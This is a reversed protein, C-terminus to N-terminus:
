IERAVEDIAEGRIVRLVVKPLARPAIPPADRDTWVAGWPSLGVLGVKPVSRLTSLRVAGLSDVTGQQNSESTANV